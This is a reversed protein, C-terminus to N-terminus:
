PAREWELRMTVHSRVPRGAIRAPQYRALPAWRVVADGWAQNTTSVLRVSCPEVRGATDVVAEVVADVRLWRDNPANMLEQPTRPWQSSRLALAKEDVEEQVYIPSTDLGARLAAKCERGPSQARAGNPRGACGILVGVVGGLVTLCRAYRRGVLILSPQM